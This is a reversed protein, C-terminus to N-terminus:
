LRPLIGQTTSRTSFLAKRKETSGTADGDNKIAIAAETQVVKAACDADPCRGQAFDVYRAESTVSM